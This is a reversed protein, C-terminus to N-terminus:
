QQDSGPRVLEGEELGRVGAELWAIRGAATARELGELAGPAIALEGKAVRQRLTAVYEKIEQRYEEM